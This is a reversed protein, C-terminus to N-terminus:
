LFGGSKGTGFRDGLGRADKIMKERSKDDMLRGGLAMDRSHEWIVPPGEPTDEKTKSSHQSVLADGRNKRTYEDVGARIEEDRRKKRERDRLAEGERGREALDVEQDEARKRKGAVEDALRQQREAPTETWLTSDVSRVPAATRAFQRPKNLKTPDIAVMVMSDKPSEFDSDPLESSLLDSSSPPVLMWEERQPAKPKSAEERLKKRREEQELFLKVGSKEEVLVGNPLPQPGYDDDDSDDYHRRSSMGPPFTPGQLKPKPAADNTAGSRSALLEPPLAPMYDDEEEEEEPPPRSLSSGTLHTPIQPGVSPGISPGAEPEDDDFPTTSKRELQAPIEPGIM